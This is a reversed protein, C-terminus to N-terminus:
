VQKQEEPLWFLDTLSNVVTDEPTQEPDIWNKAAEAPLIVPMRDHMWRLSEHAPQTLIVFSPHGAEMRYLGALLMLGTTKTQLAYKKRSIGKESHEWEFYWSVPVICRHKYWPERFLAKESATEVRANIVMKGKLSFGWKMPFVRENGAKSSALVPLVSSPMIEGEAKLTEDKRKRFCGALVSRNMEKVFERLEPNAPAIYVRGCMVTNLHNRHSDTCEPTRSGHGM